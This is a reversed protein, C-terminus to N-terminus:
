FQVYRKFHTKFYHEWGMRPIAGGNEDLHAFYDQLAHASNGLGALDENLSGELLQNWLERAEEPNGNHGTMAHWSSHFADTEQSGEDFDRDLARQGLILSEKFSFGAKLAAFFTIARHVNVIFRGDPDTYKYPNNNAYAYRNFSM